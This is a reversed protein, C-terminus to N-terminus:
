RSLTVRGLVKHLEYPPIGGEPSKMVSDNPGLWM